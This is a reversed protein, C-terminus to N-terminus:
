KSNRNNKKANIMSNSANKSHVYNTIIEKLKLLNSFIHIGRGRNLTTPKLIWLNSGSFHSLPMTFKACIPIGKRDLGQPILKQGNLPPINPQAHYLSHEQQIIFYEIKDNTKHTEQILQKNAELVKFVHSFNHLASSIQKSSCNSVNIEISFTIPVCNFVNERMEKM